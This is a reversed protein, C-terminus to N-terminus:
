MRGHRPPLPLSAQIGMIDRGRYDNNSLRLMVGTWRIHHPYYALLEKASLPIGPPLLADVALADNYWAYSKGLDKVPTDPRRITSCVERMNFDQTEDVWSREFRVHGHISSISRTKPTNLTKMTRAVPTTFDHPTKLNARTDPPQALDRLSTTTYRDPAQEIVLQGSLRLRVVLSFACYGTENNRIAEDSLAYRSVLTWKNRKAVKAKKKFPEVRVITQSTEPLSQTKAKRPTGSTSVTEETGTSGSDDSQSRKKDCTPCNHAM